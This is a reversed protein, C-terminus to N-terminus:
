EYIKYRALLVYYLACKAMYLYNKIRSKHILVLDNLFNEKFQKNLCLFPM